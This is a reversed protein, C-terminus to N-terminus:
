YGEYEIELGSLKLLYNCSERFENSPTIRHVEHHTNNIAGEMVWTAGDPVPEEKKDLPPLDWFFTQDLLKIFNNWEEETLSQTKKYSLKGFKKIGFGGEGSLKKAILFREDGSRWVRVIVPADFTPILILRYSEDISEPLKELPTEKFRTFIEKEWFIKESSPIRSDFDFNSARFEESKPIPINPIESDFIWITTLTIGIFFTLLAFFLRSSIYKM